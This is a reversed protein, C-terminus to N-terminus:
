NCRCLTNKSKRRGLFRQRRHVNQAIEIINKILEDNEDDLNETVGKTADLSTISLFLENFKDFQM